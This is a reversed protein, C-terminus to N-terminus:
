ILLAASETHHQVYRPLVPCAIGSNLRKGSMASRDAISVTAQKKRAYLLLYM